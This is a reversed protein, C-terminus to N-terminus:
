SCVNMNVQSYARTFHYSGNIFADLHPTKALKDGYSGIAPRLDDFVVLVVNLRPPSTSTRTARSSLVSITCLVSVIRVILGPYSCM